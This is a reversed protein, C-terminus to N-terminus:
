CVTLLCRFFYILELRSYESVREKMLLFRPYLTADLPKNIIIEGYTKCDIALKM